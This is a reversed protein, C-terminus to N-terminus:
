QYGLREWICPLNLWNRTDMLPFRTSHVCLLLHKAGPFHTTFGADFEEHMIANVTDSYPSSHWTQPKKPQHQSVSATSHVQEAAQETHIRAWKRSTFLPTDLFFNLIYWQIKKLGEGPQGVSQCTVKGCWIPFYAGAGSKARYAQAWLSMDTHNCSM